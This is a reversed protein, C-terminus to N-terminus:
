SHRPGSDHPVEPGTEALIRALGERYWWAEVTWTFLMLGWGFAVFGLIVAVEGWHGGAPLPDSVLRRWLLEAWVGSWVAVALVCWWQPRTRVRVTTGGAASEFRGFAVIPLTRATRALNRVLRFGADTVRGRFAAPGFGFLAELNMAPCTTTLASALRARVAPVAERSTLVFESFM